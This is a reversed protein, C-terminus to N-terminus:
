HHDAVEAETIGNRISSRWGVAREFGNTGTQYNEFVKLLKESDTEVFPGHQVIPQELILGGILFFETKEDTDITGEITNGDINFFLTSYQPYHQGNISVAGKSVYLFVNFNSPVQQEFHTDKKDSNFVYYEVPTYALEKVSEVGYSNGSIVKVSLHDNPRAIPIDDNRLDRYRPDVNKLKAPLDVWLQLGVCPSNDAMLVPIEAHMAGKGATMFQMDGPRLIGKAGTFDEHAIMGQSMYTITEQGHHPHDPFGAPPSVTFHDLLLFPSFNRQKHTGISRRVTAGVGEKAETAIFHHALTRLIKTM